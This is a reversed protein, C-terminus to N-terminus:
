ASISWSNFIDFDYNFQQATTFKGEVHYTIKGGAVSGSRVINGNSSITYSRNINMITGKASASMNAIESGTKLVEAKAYISGSLNLLLKGSSEKIAYKITGLGKLAMQANPLPPITFKLTTLSQSITKSIPTSIGTYGYSVSGSDSKMVIQNFAKGAKVGVKEEFIITLGLFTFKKLQWVKECNYNFSLNRLNENSLTVLLFILIFQHKM